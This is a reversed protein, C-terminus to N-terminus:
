DCLGTNEDAVADKSTPTPLPQPKTREVDLKQKLNSIICKPRFPMYNTTKDMLHESPRVIAFKAERNIKMKHLEDLAVAHGTTRTLHLVTPPFCLMDALHQPVLRQYIPRDFASFVAAMSKIAAMRLVWDGNRIATHLAIYAMCNKSIYDHWFQTTDQKHCMDEVFTEYGSIFRKLSGTSFSKELTEAFSIFGTSSISSLKDALAGALSQFADAVREKESDSELHKVYKKM